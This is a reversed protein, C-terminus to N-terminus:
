PVSRYPRGKCLPDARDHLRGYGPRCAPHSRDGAEQRFPGRRRWAVPTEIEVEETPLNRTAEYCMLAAIEGVIERFEKVGTNKDRLISLKHQLLPHDLVQVKGM